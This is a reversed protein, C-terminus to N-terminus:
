AAGGARGRPRGARDALLGLATFGAAFLALGGALAATDQGELGELVVLGLGPWNFLYELLPITGLTLQAGVAVAALLPGAAVPLVHGRLLRWGEIGRGRAARIYDQDYIGGLAAASAKAILAAPMCALALTPMAVHAPDFRYDLFRLLPHGTAQVVAIEAAVVAFAVLFGPLAVGASSLVLVMGALRSSPRGAARAGVPVGVLVALLMALLLPGLTVGCARLLLAPLPMGRKVALPRGALQPACGLSGPAPPPPQGPAAFGWSCQPEQPSFRPAALALGLRAVLVVLVIALLLRSGARTAGLLLRAGM